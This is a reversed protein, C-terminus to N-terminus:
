QEKKGSEEARPGTAAPKQPAPAIPVRRAGQGVTSQGEVPRRNPQPASQTSPVSPRAQEPRVAPRAIPRAANSEPPPMTASRVPPRNAAPSTVGEKRVQETSVVPKRVPARRPDANTTQLVARSAPRDTRVPPNQRVPELQRIQQAATKMPTAFNNNLSIPATAANQNVPMRVPASKPRHNVPAPTKNIAAERLTPPQVSMPVPPKAVANIAQHAPTAQRQAYKPAAPVPVTDGEQVPLAIHQVPMQPYPVTAGQPYMMAPPYVAAQPYAGAEVPYAPYMPNPYPYPSYPIPAVAEEPLDKLVTNEAFMDLTATLKEHLILTSNYNIKDSLMLTLGLLIGIVFLLAAMRSTKAGMDYGILFVACVAALQYLFKSFVKLWAVKMPNDVCITASMFESPKGRKIKKFQKWAALAAYPLQEIYEEIEDPELEYNIANIVSKGNSRYKAGYSYALSIVIGAFFVFLLIDALILFIMMMSNSGAAGFLWDYFADIFDMHGM